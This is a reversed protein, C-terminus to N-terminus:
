PCFSFRSYCPGFHCFPSSAYAVLYLGFSLFSYIFRDPFKAAIFDMQKEKIEINM